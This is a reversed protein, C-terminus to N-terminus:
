AVENFFCSLTKAVGVENLIETNIKIDIHIHKANEEINDIEIRKQILQTDDGRNSMRKVQNEKSIDLYATIVKVNNESGWKTIQQAGHPEVVIVAPKDSAIIQSSHVGYYNGGFVVGEIFEGKKDIDNFEEKSVFFYDVGNIENARMDRTTHSIVKVFEGSSVLSKEVTSKGSGSPGVLLLVKKM